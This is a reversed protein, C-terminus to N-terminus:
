LETGDAPPSYDRLEIESLTLRTTQGAAYQTVALFASAVAETTGLTPTEIVESHCKCCYIRPIKWESADASKYAYLTVCTDDYLERGCM